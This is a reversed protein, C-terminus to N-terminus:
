TKLTYNDGWKWYLTEIALSSQHCQLTAKRELSAKQRYYFKSLNKSPSRVFVQREIGHGNSQLEDYHLKWSLYFHLGRVPELQCHASSFDQKHAPQSKTIKNAFM